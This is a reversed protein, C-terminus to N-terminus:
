FAPALSDDIDTGYEGVQSSWDYYFLQMVEDVKTPIINRIPFRISVARRSHDEKLYKLLSGKMLKIIKPTFYFCVCTCKYFDFDPRTFDDVQFHMLNELKKEKMEEICMDILTKNIDIGFGRCGIREVADFVIRGDGCGVDIFTDEKKTGLLTVVHDCLTPPSTIYPILQGECPDPENKYPMWDDEMSLLSLQFGKGM